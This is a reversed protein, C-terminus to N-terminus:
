DKTGTDEIDTFGEEISKVLCIYHIQSFAMNTIVVQLSKRTM